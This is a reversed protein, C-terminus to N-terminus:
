RVKPGVKRELALFEELKTLTENIAGEREAAMGIIKRLAKNERKLEKIEARLIKDFLKM